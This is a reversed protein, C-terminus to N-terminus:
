EDVNEKASPKSNGKRRLLWEKLKPNKFEQKNLWKLVEKPTIKGAKVRERLGEAM